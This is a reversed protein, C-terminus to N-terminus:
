SLSISLSVEFQEASENITLRHTDPYILQLRSRTNEVGLGSHEVTERQTTVKKNSILVKLDNGQLGINIKIHSSEEPNVGHKFANEIFPILLMPAIRSTGPKTSNYYDIEVGEDLRIKQFDIYNGVYNLEEQLPVFDKQTEKMTYRMMESLKEVMEASRPSSDLATAYISNLTNFLFHPNIQSKLSAVQASLKEQEIQRLRNSYALALSPILSVILMQFMNAQATHHVLTQLPNASGEKAPATMEFVLYAFAFSSVLCSIFIFGYSVYRKNFLFRPILYFYNIYFIFINIASVVIVPLFSIDNAYPTFAKVHQYTTIYPMVLLLCWGIIHISVITLRSKM